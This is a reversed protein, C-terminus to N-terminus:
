LLCLRKKIFNLNRKAEALPDKFYKTELTMLGSFNIANLSKLLIDFNVLGKGLLVNNGQSDRDKIHVHIILSSLKLIDDSPNESSYWLNGSDLCLGIWESDFSDVAKIIDSAPMDLELALKTNYKNLLNNIKHENIAKIFDKLVSPTDIKAKGLLPIVLISPISSKFNQLADLIENTIDKFSTKSCISDLCMSPAPLNFIENIPKMLKNAKKIQHKSDWLLEIHEYGINEAVIIEEQWTETPFIQLQDIYRPLIRGQMIGISSIKMM